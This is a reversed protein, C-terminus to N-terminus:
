KKDLLKKKLLGLDPIRDTAVAEINSSITELVESRMIVIDKPAEIGIKVKDGSIDLINIKVKDGITFSESSKRTIVLM